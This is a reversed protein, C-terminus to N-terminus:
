TRSAIGIVSENPVIVSNFGDEVTFKAPTEEVPFFRFEKVLSCLVLKLEEQAFRMAICNRPGMGFPM